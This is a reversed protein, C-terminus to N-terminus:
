RREAPPGYDSMLPMNEAGMDLIHGDKLKHHLSQHHGHLDNTFGVSWGNKCLYGIPDKINRTKIAAGPDRSVMERSSRLERFRSRDFSSEVARHNRISDMDNIHFMIHMRGHNDMHYVRPVHRPVAYIAAGARGQKAFLGKAFMTGKMARKRRGLPRSRGPGIEYARLNNPDIQTGEPDVRYVRRAEDLVGSILIDATNM